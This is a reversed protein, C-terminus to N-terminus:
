REAIRPTSTSTEVSVNGSRAASYTDDRPLGYLLTVHLEDGKSVDQPRWIGRLDFSASQGSASADGLMGTITLVFPLETPHATCFDAWLQGVADHLARPARGDAAMGVFCEGRNDFIAVRAAPGRSPMHALMVVVKTLNPAPRWGFAASLMPSMTPGFADFFADQDGAKANRFLSGFSFRSTRPPAPRPPEDPRLRYTDAVATREEDTFGHERWRVSMSLQGTGESTPTPGHVAVYPPHHVDPVGTGCLDIWYKAVADQLLTPDPFSATDIYTIDNNSTDRLVVRATPGRGRVHVLTIDVYGVAMEVPPWTLIDVLMTSMVPNFRKMFDQTMQMVDAEDQAKLRQRDCFAKLDPIWLSRRRSGLYMNPKWDIGELSMAGDRKYLLVMDGPHHVGTANGEVMDFWPKLMARFLEQQKDVARHVEHPMVINSNAVFAADATVAGEGTATLRIFVADANPPGWALAARAIERSVDSFPNSNCFALGHEEDAANMGPPGPVPGHEELDKADNLKLEAETFPREHPYCYKVLDLTYTIGELPLKCRVYSEQIVEGFKPQAAETGEAPASSGAAPATAPVATRAVPAVRGGDKEPPPPAGDLHTAQKSASCGM